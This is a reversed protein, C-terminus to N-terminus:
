ISTPFLAKVRGELQKHQPTIIANHRPQVPCGSTTQCKKHQRHELKKIHFIKPSHLLWSLLSFIRKSFTDQQLQELDTRDREIGLSNLAFYLKHKIGGRKSLSFPSDSGLFRSDVSFWFGSLPTPSASFPVLIQRTLPCAHDQPTLLDPAPHNPHLEGQVAAGGSGRISVAVLWIRWLLDPQQNLIQWIFWPVARNSCPPLFPEPQARQRHACLHQSSQSQGVAIGKGWVWCLTADRHWQTIAKNCKVFPEECGSTSAPATGMWTNWAVSREKASRAQSNM